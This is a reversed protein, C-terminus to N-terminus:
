LMEGKLKEFKNKISKKCNYITKRDLSLLYSIKTNTYTKTFVFFSVLKENFTLMRKLQFLCLKDIISDLQEIIDIKEDKTLPNYYDKFNFDDFNYSDDYPLDINEILPVEFRQKEYQKFKYNKVTMWIIGVIEKKEEESLKDNLYNKM